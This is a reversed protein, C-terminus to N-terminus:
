DGESSGELVGLPAELGPLDELRGGSREAIWDINQFGPIVDPDYSERWQPYRSLWATAGLSQMRPLLM